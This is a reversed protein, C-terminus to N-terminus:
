PSTGMASSYEDRYRQLKPDDPAIALAQKLYYVARREDKRSRYIELMAVLADLNRPDEFLSSRLDGMATEEDARLRSRLFHFRSKASGGGMSPLRSEIISAAEQRRGSDILASVYFGAWELNAPDREHLEKAASLASATDGLGRYVSYAIRLDAASRRSSLLSDVLPLAEAWAFRAVADRLALELIAPNRSGSAALRSLVARGEATEEPRSSELLIRAYYALAEEDDPRTRLLSRLYTLASDRNRYGEAQVRARLFLYLRSNADVVSYADLLPQAQTFAGQEVLIHARMLLFRSDRPDRQLVEAVANAARSWDAGSYYALALERKVLINDPYRVSLDTLLSLSEAARGLAAAVRAAGVVAPYAEPSFSYAQNYAAFAEDLRGRREAVIGRFYPDLASRRGLRSAKELDPLAAALRETRTEALLALFPLVHELYDTSQSSAPTYSGRDADRLIRTYLNTPPPDAAPLDAPIEPYLKRMLSVCVSVMSRGFETGGLERSRIIDLARVLSPPTGTEVLARIEAAIGTQRSDPAADPNVTVPTSALPSGQPAPAAACSCFASAALAAAIGSFGVRFRRGRAPIM